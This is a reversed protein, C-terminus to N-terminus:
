RNGGEQLYAIENSTMKVYDAFNEQLVSHAAQLESHTAQLELHAAELADYASQLSQMRKASPTFPRIPLLHSPTIYDTHSTNQMPTGTSIDTYADTLLM